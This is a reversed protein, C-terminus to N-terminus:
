MVSVACTASSKMGNLLRNLLFLINYKIDAYLLAYGEVVCMDCKKFDAIINIPTVSIQNEANARKFIFHCLKNNSRFLIPSLRSVNYKNKRYNFLLENSYILLDAQHFLFFIHINNQINVVGIRWLITYKSMRILKCKTIINTNTM